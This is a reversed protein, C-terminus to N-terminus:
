ANFDIVKTKKDYVGAHEGVNYDVISMVEDTKTDVLYTTGEYRLLKLNMDAVAEELTALKSEEDDEESEESEESEEAEEEPEAQEEEEVEAEAESDQEEEAEAKSSPTSAKSAAKKEARKAKIGVKKAEWEAAKKVPDVGELVAKRRSAEKMAVQRILGKEKAAKKFDADNEYETRIVGLEAAMEQFTIAVFNNWDTRGDKGDKPKSASKSAAKASKAPKQVECGNKEIVEQCVAMWEQAQEPTASKLIQTFASLSHFAAMKTELEDLRTALKSTLM